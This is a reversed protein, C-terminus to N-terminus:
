RDNSQSLLKRVEGSSTRDWPTRGTHDILHPNAGQALLVKVAEIHGYEAARHLATRKLSDRANIDAGAELLLIISTISAKEPLVAHHLPKWDFTNAKNPDAGCKLLMEVIRPHNERVATILATTEFGMFMITANPDAKHKILVSAGVESGKGSAAILAESIENRTPPPDLSNLLESLRKIDEQIIAQHLRNKSGLAQGWASPITVSVSLLIFFGCFLRFQYVMPM